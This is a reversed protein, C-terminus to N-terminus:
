TGTGRLTALLGAAGAALLEEALSRGLAVGDRADGEVAKRYVIAGDPAGVLGELRLTPGALTAFGAIPSQCSGGLRAAFAREATLCERTPRHELPALLALLAPTNRCELGVIGQGVAPLMLSHDLYETIRAGLGLRVLGAAALIIADFDGADLKRLRTDVNGRLAAIKLDPRAARLLCQRRQSSTGIRAGAPLAAFRAHRPSLFADRPDARPLVAAISFGDPLEAPVDKMSHVALDARDEAMAVELEKIFLGKGGADALPRDQIRDGQTVIPVLRVELGPHSSRLLAAVHEAQWLALASRRTAIRLQQM